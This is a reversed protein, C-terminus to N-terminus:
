RRVTALDTRAREGIEEVVREFEDLHDAYLPLVGGLEDARKRYAEALSRYYCVNEEETSNFRDWLDDGLRRLDRLIARANHLKDCLSVAVADPHVDDELESIYQEKRERWELDEKEEPDGDTCGLVAREVRAGFERRILEQRRSADSLDEADEITDHLLGAIALEEDGGAELVLSAVSLLHALYPTGRGKREQHRHWLYTVGVAHSFTPGVKVTEDNM